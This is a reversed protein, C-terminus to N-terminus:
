APTYVERPGRMQKIVDVLHLFAAPEHAFDSAGANVVLLRARDFYYFFESYARVLMEAEDFSVPVGAQERSRRVIAEPSTHVYIVLDPQPVDHVMLAYLRSFLTRDEDSLRMRAYITDQEILFDSVTVRAFLDQQLLRLMQRRRALASVVQMELAWDSPDSEYRRAFPNEFTESLIARGEFHAALQRALSRRLVVDAGEVVISRLRLSSRLPEAIRQPVRAASARRPKRAGSAAVVGTSHDKRLVRSVRVRARARDVFRLRCGACGWGVRVWEITTRTACDSAGRRRM